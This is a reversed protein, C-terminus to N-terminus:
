YAYWEEKKQWSEGPEMHRNEDDPTMGFVCKILKEM